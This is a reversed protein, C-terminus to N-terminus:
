FSNIFADIKWILSEFIQLIEARELYLIHGQGSLHKQMNFSSKGHTSLTILVLKKNFKLYVKLASIRVINENTIQFIMSSKMFENQSLRVKIFAPIAM